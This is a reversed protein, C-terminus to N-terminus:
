KIFGIVVLRLQKIFIYKDKMNEVKMMAYDTQRVAYHEPIFLNYYYDLAMKFLRLDLSLNM